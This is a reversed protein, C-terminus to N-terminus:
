SPATSNAVPVVPPLVRTQQSRTEEDLIERARFALTEDVTVILAAQHASLAEEVDKWYEEPLLERWNDSADGGPEPSVVRVVSPNLEVQSSLYNAAFRAQDESEFLGVLTQALLGQEESSSAGLELEIRAAGIGHGILAHVDEEIDLRDHETLVTGTVVLTDAELTANVRAGSSPYSEDFSGTLIQTWWARKRERIRRENEGPNM